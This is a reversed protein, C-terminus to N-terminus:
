HFGRAPNGPSRQLWNDASYRCAADILHLTYAHRSRPSRNPGSRHPLRGHLVVLDGVGVELPVFGREPIPSPDLTEMWTREGERRFRQRLPLRHGGPLAFLCGNDCVADELAFWLGLCSEPETHLFTSDQHCGVEGGILPPKLIYMSQLLLPADLGLGVAVAELEPRRSFAAFTPDLDHLAHGVKNIAQERPRTLRGQADIAEEEFFFRIRDGSDLFYRNRAHRQDKTSFVEALGELTAQEILEAMRVRLADCAGPDSFGRLVVFGDRAFAARDSAALAM